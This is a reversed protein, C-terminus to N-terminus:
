TRIVKHDVIGFDKRRTFRVKVIGGDADTIWEGNPSGCRNVSSLERVRCHRQDTLGLRIM